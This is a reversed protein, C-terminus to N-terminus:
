TCTSIFQQKMPITHSIISLNIVYEVVPSPDQTMSINASTMVCNFTAGGSNSNAISITVEKGRLAALTGTLLSPLGPTSNNTTTLLMGKITMTGLGKGFYIWNVIDDFTLFFQIVESTQFSIDTIVSLSNSSTKIADFESPLSVATIVNIGGKFIEANSSSDYTYIAAM